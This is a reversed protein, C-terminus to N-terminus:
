KGGMIFTKIDQKIHEAKVYDVSNIKGDKNIDLPDYQEEKNKSITLGILVGLLIFIISIVISEIKNM